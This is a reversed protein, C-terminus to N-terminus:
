SFDMAGCKTFFLKKCESRKENFIPNSFDSIIWETGDFKFKRASELDKQWNDIPFHKFKSGVEPSFRGLVYSYSLKKKGFKKLPKM